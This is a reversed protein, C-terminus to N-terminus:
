KAEELEIWFTSGQNLDSEVGVRGGMREVSKKVVALGIGTGEYHKPDLREFINFIRGQHRPAIGIGSDKIFLRVRGDFPRNEIRIVPISGNKVFKIANLILNIVAQELVTANARVHALPGISIKASSERISADLSTVATAVVEELAVRTVPMEQHALRGYTLLEKILADMRHASAAIRKAYDHATPTLEQSCDELLASSFAEMSRLPGRLDHAISYSVGELSTITEELRATRESVRQELVNAQATLEAKAKALAGFLHSNDLASASQGAMGEVLRSSMESFKFPETHGFFLAGLVMGSRSVVSAALFSYFPKPASGDELELIESHHGEAKMDNIRMMGSGAFASALLPTTRTLGLQAFGKQTVGSLACHAFQSGEEDTANYFFAGFEAGSLDRGADVAIQVVKNLELESALSRGVRNLVEAERRAGQALQLSEEREREAKRRATIEHFVLIVGIIETKEDRIPSASDDIATETGDKSILVTHNALGVIRQERLAKSVPNEVPRRTEEHVINFVSELPQGLAEEMKWGTLVEAVPNLFNVNGSTDTAVVADGISRLTVNLWEQQEVLATESQKRKIWQAIGDAIPELENIVDQSLPRRAFFAVVGLAKGELTLPYGAFSIMGERVAWEPNSVEPDTAVSNSLHAKLNKAIRGIKFDGVKVRGHPGDLHTYLGASARLELVTGPKDLVWIRAFAANLHNVLAETCAQLVGDLEGPRNFSANIDARLSALRAKDGITALMAEYQSTSYSPM